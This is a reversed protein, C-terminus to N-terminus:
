NESIKRPPGIPMGICRTDHRDDELGWSLKGM